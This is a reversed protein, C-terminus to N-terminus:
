SRRRLFSSLTTVMLWRITVVEAEGFVQTWLLVFLTLLSRGPWKFLITIEESGIGTIISIM